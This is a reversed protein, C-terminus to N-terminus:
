TDDNNDQNRSHREMKIIFWCLVVVSLGILVPTLVVALLSGLFFLCGLLGALLVAKFLDM